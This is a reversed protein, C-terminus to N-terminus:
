EATKILAGYYPRYREFLFLTDDGAAFIGIFLGLKLDGTNVGRLDWGYRRLHKGHSLATRPRLDIIYFGRAVHAGFDLAADDAELVSGYENHANVSDLRMQYLVESTKPYFINLRRIEDSARLTRVTTADQAVFIIRRLFQAVPVDVTEAEYDTTAAVNAHNNASWAPVMGTIGPIPPLHDLVGQAQMEARIDEPSGLVRHITYRMIASTITTVDDLIDNGSVTWEANLQSEVSAPIFGSLDFPDDIGDRHPAAGCHLVFNVPTYTVSPAVIVGDPHGLGYGDARNAYHLLVGGQSGDDAPLNFFTENAVIRMNQIMRFLADPQNTGGLSASPTVEVTPEIRTIIGMRELATTITADAAWTGSANQTISVKRLAM